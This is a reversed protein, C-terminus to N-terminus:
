EYSIRVKVENKGLSTLLSSKVLVESICSSNEELNGCDEEKKDAELGEPIQWYIKLNKVQSLAKVEAKIRVEEGRTIVQPETLLVEVKKVEVTENLGNESNNLFSLNQASYATLSSLLIVTFIPLIASQSKLKSLAKM